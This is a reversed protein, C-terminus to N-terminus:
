QGLRELARHNQAMADRLRLFFEQDARRRRVAVTLNPRRADPPQPQPQPGPGPSGNAHESV